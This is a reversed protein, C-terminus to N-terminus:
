ENQKSETLLDDVDAVHAGYADIRERTQHLDKRLDHLKAFNPYLALKPTARNM